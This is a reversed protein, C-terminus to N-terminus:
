PLDIEVPVILLGDGDLDGPVKIPRGAVRALYATGALTVRGRMLDAGKPTLAADFADMIDNLLAAGITKPDRADVYVFVKVEIKRRPIAGNQWTYTEDGGEHLFACPRQAAPVDAFLRLRRSPPTKWAWIGAVVVKLAEVAANRSM